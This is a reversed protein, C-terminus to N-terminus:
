KLKGISICIPAKILLVSMGWKLGMKFVKFNCVHFAFQSSIRSQQVCGLDEGEPQINRCGFREDELGGGNLVRGGKSVARFPHALLHARPQTFEGGHGTRPIM